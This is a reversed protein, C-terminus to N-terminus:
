LVAGGVEQYCLLLPTDSLKRFTTEPTKFFISGSRAMMNSRKCTARNASEHCFQCFTM